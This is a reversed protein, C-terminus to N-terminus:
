SATVFRMRSSITATSSGFYIRRVASNVGRPPIWLMIVASYLLPSSSDPRHSRTKKGGKQEEQNQAGRRKGTGVLQAHHRVVDPEGRRGFAVVPGCPAVIQDGVDPRGIGIQEAQLLRVLM